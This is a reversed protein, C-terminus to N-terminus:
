RQNLLPFDVMHVLDLAPSVLAIGGVPFDNVTLEVICGRDPPSRRFVIRGL